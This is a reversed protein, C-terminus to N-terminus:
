ANVGRTDKRLITSSEGLIRRMEKCILLRKQDYIDNKKSKSIVWQLGERILDIEQVNIDFNGTTKVYDNNTEGAIGVADKDYKSRDKYFRM